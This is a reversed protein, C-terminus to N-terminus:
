RRRPSAIVPFSGGFGASVEGIVRTPLLAAPESGNAHVGVGHYGDGDVRNNQHSYVFDNSRGNAHEQLGGNSIGVSSSFVLPPRPIFQYAKVIGPVQRELYLAMASFNSRVNEDYLPMRSEASIIDTALKSAIGASQLVKPDKRQIYFFTSHLKQMTSAFSDNGFYDVTHRVLFRSLQKYVLSNHRNYALNLPGPPTDGRSGPDLHKKGSLRVYPRQRYMRENRSRRVKAREPPELLADLSDPSDHDTQTETLKSYLGAPSGFYAISRREEQAKEQARLLVQSTAYLAVLFLEAEQVRQNRRHLEQRHRMSEICEYLSYFGDSTPELTRISDRFHRDSPEAFFSM